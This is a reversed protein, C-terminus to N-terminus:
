FRKYFYVRKFGDELKRCIEEYGLKPYMELNESMKENTYLEVAARGLRRAESECFGILQRGIGEGQFEPLVAVNELFMNEGKPFFVIFGQSNGESSVAVYVRGQEIRSAFDAVMPAPKKGIREIYIAYSARACEEIAKLDGASAARISM